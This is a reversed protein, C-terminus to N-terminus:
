SGNYGQQVSFFVTHPIFIGKSDAYINKRNVNKRERGTKIQANQAGGCAVIRYLCNDGGDCRRGNYRLFISTKSIVTYEWQLLM